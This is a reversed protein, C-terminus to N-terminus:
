DPGPPLGMAIEELPLRLDMHGGYERWRLADESLHIFIADNRLRNPVVLFGQGLGNSSAELDRLTQYDALDQFTGIGSRVPAWPALRRHVKGARTRNRAAGYRVLSLEPGPLWLLENLETLLAIRGVELVASGSKDLDVEFVTSTREGEDEDGFWLWPNVLHGSLLRDAVPVNISLGSDSRLGITTANVNFLAIAVVETASALTIEVTASIGTSRATDELNDTQLNEVAYDPDTDETDMAATATPVVDVWPPAYLSLASAPIPM